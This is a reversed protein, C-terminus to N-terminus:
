RRSFSRSAKGEPIRRSRRKHSGHHFTHRPSRRAEPIGVALGSGTFGLAGGTKAKALQETYTRVARKGLEDGFMASLAAGITEVTLSVLHELEGRFQRLFNVFAAYAARIM